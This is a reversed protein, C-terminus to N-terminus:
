YMWPNPIAHGTAPSVSAELHNSAAPYHASTAHAGHGTMVASAALSGLAIALVPIRRAARRPRSTRAAHAPRKAPGTRVRTVVPLIWKHAKM